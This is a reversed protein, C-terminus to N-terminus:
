LSGDLAVFRARGTDSVYIKGEDDTSVGLLRDFGYVSFLVKISRGPDPRFDTGNLILFAFVLGFLLLLLLLLLILLRRMRGSRESDEREAEAAGM